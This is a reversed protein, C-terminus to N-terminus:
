TATPMDPHVSARASFFERQLRPMQELAESANKYHEYEQLRAVLEARPDEDEAEISPLKPLLTRSKIETLWAAMALYEAAPELDMRQMMDLYHLYQQTLDAM